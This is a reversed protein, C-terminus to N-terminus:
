REKAPSPPNANLVYDTVKEKIVHSKTRVVESMKSFLSHGSSKLEKNSASSDEPSKEGKCVLCNKATHSKLRTSLSDKLM